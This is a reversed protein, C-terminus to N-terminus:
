SELPPAALQLKFSENHLISDSSIIGRQAPNGRDTRSLECLIALRSPGRTNKRLQKLSQEQTEDLHTEQSKKKKDGAVGAANKGGPPSTTTPSLQTLSKKRDRRGGRKNTNCQYCFWHQQGEIMTCSGVARLCLLHYAHGCSFVIINEDEEPYTYPKNCVHCVDGKPVMGKNVSQKLNALSWHLDHNLLSNTTRLLTREYNYTDLMGLILERMDGFKGSSYTPDQMTKQLIAPLAIYGMMSNLVHKTLEKFEDLQADPISGKIKRQAAMMLDLLPFWLGQRETEDLRPSNRQCLQVLVMLSAKVASLSVALDPKDENNQSTIETFVRVKNQLTELMIGFAGQVDGAKELLYATANTLKYRRVIELTEEIRYNETNRVYNYVNNIHYQCMLEIYKEQVEPDIIAQERVYIASGSSEKYDFVGKLFEYLVVQSELKKAIDTISHTFDDLILQATTKSDLTVLEELHKIAEQQLADKEEQAYFGESMIGHIFSFAQHQRASDKLYCDLIKYYQRRKDYLLECVRYFKASEALKLLKHENVQQLGGANLLELLAQQREEHRSEDNPNSLFELVQEFLLRNVIISNEHKAMQRALFTFLCGIQTPSFGISEVMIQLLIDVVRQRSQVSLPFMGESSDFEPEEFALALVNLFERTDFQLLTRLYPYVHEEENHGKTHITTICKFVSEKVNRVIDEPIDGFPYARGALCCSIYVLLKNGLKIQEDTLQKSSSTAAQLVWLLEELPTVYDGMGKNYVYLIADYLGHAWCLSVVQHIDLSSVNMHVICAEVNQLMGKLEYHEVFEKMVTPTISVLKDNLIYPELCELFVGKAIMDAGFKDFITSFLIDTRDLTLCYDVCIPVVEQFHRELVEITGREPCHQTMSLDVFTFLLDLIKDAVVAKRKQQSGILGVVAKAKGTYFSLALTLAEKFKNQKVLLDIREKWTRMTMVHVSKTGVFLLQGTYSVISQYCANEAALALAKSVNGGTALSKFYSSSYVLEVDVLDIVELEEETRVDVVHLRETTDVTVLTRSNFWAISLLMYPMEVRQLPAFKINNVDQCMVQYFLIANGRAFALVPDIVRASDSVQIIVFQWTLLPLSTPDGKLSKTFLVQLKPRITVILVKSLTAMALLSVDQLPHDKVTANMHLPEITCVEGRSGSFLCKSECSRMGMVRKFSLEFVSGGSDSCIALTPDDTFKIHLVASGPPHADTITRLLKGTSLDWMTIQGKAFGALLRSCDNNVCLASVAGYQAGVATSGLCWKLAQKPDFVMILGHSTGIAILASVAMATPKGADVRDAASVLQSSIGKLMVHRIIAGHAAYMVSSKKRQKHPSMKESVTVGSNSVSNPDISPEGTESFLGLESDDLEFVDDPENLISELTPVDEVEPIDLDSDDFGGLALNLDLSDGGTVSATAALASELGEAM